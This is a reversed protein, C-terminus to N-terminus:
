EVRIRVGESHASFEPAYMCQISSIGNSFTGKQTVNLPYEFVWTGKRLYSFFFNVSADRISEYYGMGGQWKYGSLANRPELAAARMDKMHVFEMDRDSRIEIRSVVKDGPNLVDGENVPKLVPGEDTYIEVFLKKQISLPSAHATIKDLNEFYQWYVAGWAVGVNAKTVSINAMDATIESGAWQHRFYGTGAEKKVGDISDPVIYQEGVKITVDGEETLLNAGRLLLAYCADATAKTTEWDQTQKQKLLWTKMQEVSAQDNMVEDFAEILLAQTEIPAEYWYYGADQRWYMGMEDDFLAYEKLSAVILAPMPKDGMRHLSLAIMGQLYKDYDTWYKKVQEKFYLYAEKHKELFFYDDTFFSRAYLYQIHYRNLYNKTQYDEHKKKIEMFDEHMRNDMYRIADRIMGNVLRDDKAIIGLHQMKGFGTLIYQTIYRNDRGGAFWPWGGNSMQNQKLKNLASSFENGMKNLDFLLAIRKKRESENKAQMVWPTEELLAYKLDQNKELNSLLADPTENIWSEFVTKIKPHQNVIHSAFGNAYVRNFTQESCEYPYEMLYPLAQVAYWAPNSTFELTYSYNKLTNGETQSNALKEFVFERSENGNIPLPMSETVLMRNKLVPIVMEEGDSFNGATAIVRYLVPGTNEPINLKWSVHSSKGESASFDVSMHDNGYLADVPKMSIADFLQLTAKGQLEKESMNVVKASFFIEDGERFFRPQNPIIMLDKQTVLEKTVHGIKLDQTYAMGMMKWKTLSEPIRFSILVDGDANTKLDPFFFATEQLNRRIPVEEPSAPSEPIGPPNNISIDKDLLDGEKNAKDIITVEELNDTETGNMSMIGGISAAKIKVSRSPMRNMEYQSYYYGYRYLGAWILNDYTRVAPYNYAEYKQYIIGNQKGFANGYNWYDHHYYSNFLSFPWSHFKIDDLSADYMGALMEAAVKEGKDSRIKINWQEEQGPLLKDRFSEFSIDLEKNSYPVDINFSSNYSMNHSVFLLSVGVGGRDGETIPIEIKRQENNLEIWERSLTRNKGGIEYLIKVNQYASGILFAAKEGPECSSKLPVFWSAAHLPLKDSSPSFLTFYKTISVEEGFADEAKMEVKYEGPAWSSLKELKLEQKNGTNIDGHYLVSFVEWSSKDNENKYVRNPFLKKFEEEAILYVDPQQGVREMLVRDPVILRSVTLSVVSPEAEGNLNTTKLSFVDKLDANVQEPMDLTILLSKEGVSVSKQGSHTEGSIDTIDVYVTYNFVANTNKHIVRDPIATFDITFAGSVDTELEGYSIETSNSEPYYGRWYYRFPYYTNRVIRYKVRANDIANGSYAMAKGSIRIESNLKYSGKVADFVVEFKPRKYEEVSFRINGSENQIRMNGTLMGVPATFTGNVSGYENSQLHLESVKQNNVDYFQVTTNKNKLIEYEEGTRELLIGKFYISQGPRYISRDTFFYSIDVPKDPYEQSGYSYFFNPSIFRDEDTSIDLIVRKSHGAKAPILFTGDAGSTYTGADVLKYERSGNDYVEEFANIKAEAIQAGNDRQLLYFMLDGNDMNNEIYSINSVWFSVINTIGKEKEFAPDDSIMLAYYGETLPPIALESLHHHHDEEVPMEISWQKVPRIKRYEKLTFDADYNLRQKRENEPDLPIIRLFVTSVNRFSLSSLIAQGPINALDVQCDLSKEKIKKLLVKCLAAGYSDPFEKIANECYQAAIILDRQHEDSELPQYLHLSQFYLQAIRHYIETIPESDIYTKEMQELTHLYIKEKNEFVANNYVFELRQLDVDVLAAHNEDHLHFATLERFLKLAHFHMSFREKENLELKVFADAVDMMQTNDIEFRIAPRSAMFEDNRYFDLATHALIDYLSPRFIDLSDNNQLIDAYDSAATNQLLEPDALSLKFEDFIKEAFRQQDWTAMDNQEYDFLNTRDLIIYRHRSYYGLYLDALLSHLLQTSPASFFEMQSKIKAIGKQVYEEEYEVGLRIRYELSKLMQVEDKDKKAEEFINDMIEIASRPKGKETLALAEKWQKDYKSIEQAGQSLVTKASFGNLISYLGFLFLLNLYKAKM